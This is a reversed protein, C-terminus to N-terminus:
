AGQASVLPQPTDSRGLFADEVEARLRAEEGAYRPSFHFPELRRVGALRGLVTTIPTYAM